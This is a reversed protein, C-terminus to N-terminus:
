LPAGSNAVVFGRGDCHGCTRTRGHTDLIEVLEAERAAWNIRADALTVGGIADLVDLELRSTMWTEQQVRRRMQKVTTHRPPSWFARVNFTMKTSSSHDYCDGYKAGIEKMHARFGVLSGPVLHAANPGYIRVWHSPQWNSPAPETPLDSPLPLHSSVDIPKTSEIKTTVQRYQHQLQEPLKEFESESVQLPLAKSELDPDTLAYTDHYEYGVVQQEVTTVPGSTLVSHLYKGGGLHVPSGVGNKLTTNYSDVIVSYLCQGDPAQLYYRATM